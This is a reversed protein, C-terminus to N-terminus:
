VCVKSYQAKSALQLIVRAIRELQAGQLPERPQAVPKAGSIVPLERPEDVDGGKPSHEHLLRKNVHKM